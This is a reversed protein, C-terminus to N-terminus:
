IRFLKRCNYHTLQRPRPKYDPLLLATDLSLYFYPPGRGGTESAALIKPSTWMVCSEGLIATKHMIAILRSLHRPLKKQCTEHCNLLGLFPGADLSALSPVHYLFCFYQGPGCALSQSLNFPLFSLVLNCIKTGVVQSLLENVGNILNCWLWNESAAADWVGPFHNPSALIPEM